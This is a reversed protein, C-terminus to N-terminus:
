FGTRTAGEEVQRHMINHSERLEITTCGAPAPRLAELRNKTTSCHQHRKYPQGYQQGKKNTMKPWGKFSEGPRCSELCPPWKNTYTQNPGNRFCAWKRLTQPQCSLIQAAANTDVSALEPNIALDPTIKRVAYLVGIDFPACLRVILKMSQTNVKPKAIEVNM